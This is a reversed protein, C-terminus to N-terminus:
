RAGAQPRRGRGPQQAPGCRRSRGAGRARPPQRPHPVLDMATTSPCPAGPTRSWSGGPTPGERAPRLLLPIRHDVVLPHRVVRDLDEADPALGSLLIRQPPRTQAALADLVEVLPQTGGAPPSSSSVTVDDVASRGARATGPGSTSTM